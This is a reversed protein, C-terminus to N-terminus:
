NSKKIGNLIFDVYIKALEEETVSGEPNYWYYSWNTIGLIGFTVMDPNISRKFEGRNIGEEILTQYNERFVNRKAKIEKLHKEELHRMERFFIRASKRQTKINSILMYVIEYLKTTCDKGPNSLIHEQDRVLDVIYSLCIDKLLEQKSNFYYYFTGKTVGIIDVIDQVSTEKFGKQDFLDISADIIKQKM